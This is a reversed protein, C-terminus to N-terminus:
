GLAREREAARRGRQAIGAASPAGAHHRLIERRQGLAIRILAVCLGAFSWYVYPVFSISSTTGIVVLIALITALMARAYTKANHDVILKSKALRWLGIVITGFFGTFLILGLIGSSLTVVLYTNVTDIIGEGQILAQMEPASLYDPSGLWLNREIVDFANAILKQRYSVSGEDVSGVFPLMKFLGDGIPTLSLVGLIAASFLVLKGINVLSKESMAYFCIILAAAGIWPGRSLTAVFGFSIVALTAAAYRRPLSSWSALVCGIAVMLVYGLTIGGEATGAARLLGDRRVYGIPVGWQDAISAYLHWAKGFEFAAILSLPLVAVIYALLVKRFDSLNTVTRSFAFYPILIDLMNILANRAVNTVESQRLQLVTLLLAYSFVLWDPFACARNKQGRNGAAFLAPLLLVIALERANNLAFLSNVLGFGGFPVNITPVAFLCVYFLDTAAGRKVRAYAFILVAVIAFVLYDASLFAAVTTCFWTNRWIAFERPPVLEATSKKGFYFAPIALIFVVILAKIDTSM